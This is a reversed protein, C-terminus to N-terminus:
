AAAFPRLTVITRVPAGTYRRRRVSDTLEEPEFYPESFETPSDDEYDLGSVSALEVEAGLEQGLAQLRADIQALTVNGYQAPDRKGFMNLNIGHLVLIKLTM